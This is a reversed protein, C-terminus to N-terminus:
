DEHVRLPHLETPWDEDGEAKESRTLTRLVVDVGPLEAATGERLMRDSMRRREEQSLGAYPSPRHRKGDPPLPSGPAAPERLTAMGAMM